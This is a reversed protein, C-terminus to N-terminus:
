RRPVPDGRECCLTGSDRSNEARTVWCSFTLMRVAVAAVPIVVAGKAPYDFPFPFLPVTHTSRSAVWATKRASPYPRMDKDGTKGSDVCVANFGCIVQTDRRVAVVFAKELVLLGKM